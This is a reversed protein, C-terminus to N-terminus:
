DEIGAFLEHSVLFLTGYRRSGFKKPGVGLSFLKPNEKQFLSNVKQIKTISYEKRRKSLNYKEARILFLNKELDHEAFFM